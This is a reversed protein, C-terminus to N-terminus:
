FTHKAAFYLMSATGYYIFETCVLVYVVISVIKCYIISCMIDCVINNCGLM